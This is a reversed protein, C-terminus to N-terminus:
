GEPFLAKFNAMLSNLQTIAEERCHSKAEVVHVENIASNAYALV